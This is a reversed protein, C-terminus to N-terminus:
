KSKNTKGLMEKFNSRKEMAQEFVFSELKGISVPEGKIGRICMIRSMAQFTSMNKEAFGQCYQQRM